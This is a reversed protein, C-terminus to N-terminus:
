HDPPVIEKPVGEGPPLTVANHLAIAAAQLTTALSVGEFLRHVTMSLSSVPLALCPM